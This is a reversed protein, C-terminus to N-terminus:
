EELDVPVALLTGDDSGVTFVLSEAVVPYAFHFSFDQAAELGITANVWTIPERPVGDVLLRVDQNGLNTSGGGCRFGGHNLVRLDVTLFRDGIMARRSGYSTPYETNLLDISTEGGLMTVDLEQRCGVGVGQAPGGGSLDIDVPGYADPVVGVLPVLLPVRGPEAVQFTAQDFTTGSPVEFALVIETSRNASLGINPRGELIEPAETAGDGLDLAFPIPVWNATDTDSTNNVELSLFLYSSDSVVDRDRLYTRPEINGLEANTIVVDLFSYTGGRPLGEALSSVTPDVQEAGATTTPLSTPSSADDAIQGETGCSTVVIVLLVIWRAIPM